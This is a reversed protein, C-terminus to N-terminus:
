KWGLVKKLFSSPEKKNVLAYQEIEGRDLFIGECLTCLDIEVSEIMKNVMDSGCKPCKMWHLDKRKQAEEAKLAEAMEAERRERDIKATKILEQEHHRFWDDENKKIKTDSSM